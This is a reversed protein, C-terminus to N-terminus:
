EKLINSIYTLTSSSSLSTGLPQLIKNTMYDEYTSGELVYELGRGIIAYASDAYHPKNYMPAM